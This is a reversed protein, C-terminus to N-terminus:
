HPCLTQVITLLQGPDFPKSLVAAAGAGQATALFGGARHAPEGTMAVIAAHPALARLQRITELGDQVPMYQDCLVLDAPRRTFAAVGDRGNPAEDVEHGSEELVFRLLMQVQPDDDIILVHAM